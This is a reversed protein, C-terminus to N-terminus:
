YNKGHSSKVNLTCYVSVKLILEGVNKEIKEGMKM